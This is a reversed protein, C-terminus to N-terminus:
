RRSKTKKVNRKIQKSKRKNKRSKKFKRNGYGIRANDMENELEEDIIAIDPTPPLIIGNKSIESMLFRQRGTIPQKSISPNNELEMLNPDKDLVAKKILKYSAPIVFTLISFACTLFNKITSVQSLLTLSKITADSIANTLALSGRSATIQLACQMPGTGAAINTARAIAQANQFQFSGVVGEPYQGRLPILVQGCEILAKSIGRSADKTLEELIRQTAIFTDTQTPMRELGVGKALSNWISYMFGGDTGNSPNAYEPDALIDRLINLYENNESREQVEMNIQMAISLGRTYSEYILYVAIAFLLCITMVYLASPKEREKIERNVIIEDSEIRDYLRMVTDKDLKKQKVVINTLRRKIMGGNQMPMIQKMLWLAFGKIANEQTKTVIVSKLNTAEMIKNYEREMYPNLVPPSTQTLPTLSSQSLKEFLKKFLVADM